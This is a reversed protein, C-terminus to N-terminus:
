SNRNEWEGRMENLKTDLEQAREKSIAGRVKTPLKVSEPEKEFDVLRIINALELDKLLKLAHPNRLEVTITKVNMREITNLPKM